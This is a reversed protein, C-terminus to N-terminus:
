RYGSAASVGQTNGVGSTPGQPGMLPGLGGGPVTYNALIDYTTM